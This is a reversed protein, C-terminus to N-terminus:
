SAQACCDTALHVLIAVTRLEFGHEPCFGNQVRVSSAGASSM